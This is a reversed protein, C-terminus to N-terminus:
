LLINFAKAWRILHEFPLWSFLGHPPSPLSLSFFFLFANVSFFINRYLQEDTLLINCLLLPCNIWIASFLHTTLHPKCYPQWQWQTIPLMGMFNLGPCFLRRLLRKRKTEPASLFVSSRPSKQNQGRSFHFSLRFRVSVSAVCALLLFLVRVM